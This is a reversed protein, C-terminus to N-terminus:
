KKLTGKDLFPICMCTLGAEAKVFESIDVSAVSYGLTAVLEMTKPFSGNMCIHGNLPLVNAGFPEEPLTNIITFREFPTQDVWETNILFTEDDLATCGTKLHLCGKVKVPIVEYGLPEISDTLAEIGLTNTRPSEGVYIRKGVKLVDGGEIKAPLWIRKITRHKQFFRELAAGEPRRSEVGMSTLVAFENFVIIPDEVFVSDPLHNNENLQVVRAGCGELMSCYAQHQQLARQFDIKQSELFTLECLQLAPSPKHTIVTLMKIDNRPISNKKNLNSTDKKSYTLRQM